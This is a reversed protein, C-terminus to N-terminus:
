SGEKDSCKFVSIEGNREVIATDIQELHLIGGQRAVSMVDQEQLRMRSMRDRHWHRNEVIIIPTGDALKRFTPFREKLWAVLVHNMAITVVALLANTLSRDDYVIAQITMGGLLFLLIFEFPTMQNVARRGIVRITFLLAWYAIIARLITAM